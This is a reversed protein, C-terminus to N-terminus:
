LFEGVRTVSCLTIRRTAVGSACKANVCSHFEKPFESLKLCLWEGKTEHVYQLLSKLASDDEETPSALKQALVM